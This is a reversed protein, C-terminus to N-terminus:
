FSKSTLRKCVLFFFCTYIGEVERWPHIALEHLQDKSLEAYTEHGNFLSHLKLARQLLLEFEGIAMSMATDESNERGSTFDAHLHGMDSLDLGFSSFLLEVQEGVLCQNAGASGQFAFHSLLRSATRSAHMAFSPLHLLKVVLLCPHV